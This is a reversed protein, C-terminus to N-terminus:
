YLIVCYLSTIQYIIFIWIIKICKTYINVVFDRWIELYYNQLNLLIDESSHENYGTNCLGNKANEFKQMIKMLVSSISTDNAMKNQLRYLFISVFFYM